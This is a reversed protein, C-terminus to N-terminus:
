SLLLVYVHNWLDSCPLITLSLIVAMSLFVDSVDFGRIMIDTM